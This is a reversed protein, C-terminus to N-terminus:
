FKKNNNINRYAIVYVNDALHISIEMGKNPIIFTLLLLSLPHKLSASRPPVKSITVMIGLSRHVTLGAPGHPTVVGDPCKEGNASVIDANRSSFMIERAAHHVVSAM